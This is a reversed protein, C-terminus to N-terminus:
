EPRPPQGDPQQPGRQLTPAVATTETDAAQSLDEVTTDDDGPAESPAPPQMRELADDAVGLMEDALQRMDDILRARQEWLEQNDEELTQV